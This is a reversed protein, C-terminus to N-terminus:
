KVYRELQSFRGLQPEIKKQWCKEYEIFFLNDLNGNCNALRFAVDQEKGDEMGEIMRLLYIAANSKLTEMVFQISNELESPSCFTGFTFDRIGGGLWFSNYGIIRIPIKGNREKLGMKM